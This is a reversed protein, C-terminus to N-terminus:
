VLQIAIFYKGGPEPELEPYFLRSRSAGAGAGAGALLARAVKIFIM